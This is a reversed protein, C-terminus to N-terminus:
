QKVNDAQVTRRCAGLAPDFRLADDIEGQLERDSLKSSDAYKKCEVRLHRGQRGASGADAGHQFGAKSVSVVVGILRGILAAALYELKSADKEKQLVNRLADQNNIDSIQIM